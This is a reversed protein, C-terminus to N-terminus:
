FFWNRLNVAYLIEFWIVIVVLFEFDGLENTALSKAESRIKSDNDIESIELLAEQIQSIQFRIAKVSEVRSEWRTSSLPKLSLGKVNDQGRINDIVLDLSKLENQLVAFIMQGTTDNVNLFGLFSEEINKIIENKITSALLLVLENQITHGLYYHHIEDDTIRRLHEQVIPDFDALMEILGLFNGNNNEFLRGNTGRFALNHKSLFKVISIIRFM